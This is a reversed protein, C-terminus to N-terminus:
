YVPEPPPMPEEVRAAFVLFGTLVGALTIGNLSRIDSITLRSLLNNADVEFNVGPERTLGHGGLFTLLDDRHTLLTRVMEPLEPESPSIAGLPFSILALLAHPAAKFYEGVGWVILEFDRHADGNTAVVELIAGTGSVGWVAQDLGALLQALSVPMEASLMFRTGASPEVAAISHVGIEALEAVRAMVSDADPSPQPLPSAARGALMSETGVVLTGPQPSVVGIIRGDEREGYVTEGTALTQPSLGVTRAFSADMGAGFTGQAIAVFDPLPDGRPGTAVRVCLSVADIETLPDFGVSATAMASVGAMAARAETLLSGLDADASVWPQASLEDLIANVRVDADRADM